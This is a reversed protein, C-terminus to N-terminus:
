WRYRSNAATNAYPSQGPKVPIVITGLGATMDNRLRSLEAATPTKLTVKAAIGRQMNGRLDDWAGGATAVHAAVQDTTAATTTAYDRAAEEALGMAEAEDRFENRLVEIRARMLENTSNINGAEDNLAAFKGEAEDLADNLRKQAETDGAKARALDQFNVGAIDSAEALEKLRKLDGETAMEQLKTGIFEESLRGGSEIMETVLEDVREKMKETEALFLGIGIGAVAGLADGIPGFTQGANAALEQFADGIDGGSSFSAAAERATSRAEDGVDDLHGTMRRTDDGLDRRARSSARAITDFADDVKRATQRADRGLTGELDTRRTLDALDRGADGASRGLDDLDDAARGLDFKDTDSLLSFTLDRGRTM